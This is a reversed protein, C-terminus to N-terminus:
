CANRWCSRWGNKIRIPKYNRLSWCSNGPMGYIDKLFPIFYTLGCYVSYISAITLSVVWIEPTKVAQIVGAMALKTNVEKGDKDVIAKDDEVLLYCM